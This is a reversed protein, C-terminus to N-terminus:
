IMKYILLTVRHALFEVLRLVEKERESEVIAAVYGWADYENNIPCAVMRMGPQALSETTACEGFLFPGGLVRMDPTM